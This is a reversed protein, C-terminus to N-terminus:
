CESVEEKVVDMHWHQLSLRHKMCIRTSCQPEVKEICISTKPCCGFCLVARQNQKLVCKYSWQEEQCVEGFASVKLFIYLHCFFFIHFHIYEPVHVGDSYDRSYVFM